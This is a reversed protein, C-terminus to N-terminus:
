LGVKEANPMRNGNKKRSRMVRSVIDDRREDEGEDGIEDGSNAGTYHQELDDRLYIDDFENEESGGIRPDHNAVRGGESFHQQRQKMIRGVMDMEHEDTEYNDTIQGGEAMNMGYPGQEDKGHQNLDRDDEEMAPMDHKRGPEHPPMYNRTEDEHFAIENHEQDRSTSPSEHSGIYGGEALNQRNQGSMKRLQTYTKYHEAKAEDSRENRVHEGAKSEGAWQGTREGMSSGHVGMEGGEAMCHEDECDRKGHASCEGGKAYNIAGGMAKKSRRQMDYAIALSQKQPKGHEMENRVNHSFAKDSKGKM